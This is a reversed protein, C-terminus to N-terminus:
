KAKGEKIKSYVVGVIGGIIVLLIPTIDFVFCAILGLIFLVVIGGLASWDVESIGAVATQGNVTAIVGLIAIM